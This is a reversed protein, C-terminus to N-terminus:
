KAILIGKGLISEKFKFHGNDLQARTASNGLTAFEIAFYDSFLVNLLRFACHKTKVL